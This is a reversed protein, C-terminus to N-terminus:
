ILWGLNLQKHIWTYIPTEFDLIWRGNWGLYNGHIKQQLTTNEQAWDCPYDPFYWSYIKFNDSLHQFKVQDIIVAMDQGTSCENYNKNVFDVTLQHPGPELETEILLTVSNDKQQGQLFIQDDIRVFIEPNTSVRLFKLRLNIKVYNKM